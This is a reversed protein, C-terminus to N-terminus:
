KAIRRRRRGIIIRAAAHLLVGGMAGAVAMGGALEVAPNHDRGPMYFGSLGALRSGKQTHCEVCGVSKEKPSVMHNVPWTMVTDIFGYRGSYPLGVEKMGAAAAANWDFDKWFAGEGKRPSFLKPQIITQNVTDYIQRARHIKVPVIKSNPDDYSGHLRNMHVPAGPQVKDGLLYHDATGNFFIYDPKVNKQWVFTGKISAYTPNGAANLEEFPKGNRLKGATSWDWAMKTENVKAYVPIHCTQCAVKLTHENLLGDAHPAAGHCQECSSRDHNNSSVSYLKGLIKHNSGTHCATCELDAGDAAIHVDVDRNSTLLGHELDGHKVNNGGGGAFHCFGCNGRQPPGVRQAVFNLDVDKSPLGATTKSYTGSNDHCILCDVNRADTFDYGQDKYEYGAHCTSCGELNSSVGICFNNLLNKKGITKIGRGPLFVERTWNWHSSAMVEKHRETHCSICVPTVEKPSNIKRQLVAFKRHDVPPVHKKAHKQKLEQLQESRGAPPRQLAGALLVVFVAVTVLALPIYRM